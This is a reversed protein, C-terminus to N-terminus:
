AIDALGRAHERLARLEGDGATALPADPDLPCGFGGADTMWALVGGSMCAPDFLAPPDCFPIGEAGVWAVKSGGRILAELTSQIAARFLAGSPWRRIPVEWGHVRWGEGFLVFQGPAPSEPWAEAPFDPERWGGASTLGYAIIGPEEAGSTVITLVDRTLMGTM